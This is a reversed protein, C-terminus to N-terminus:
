FFYFVIIVSFLNSQFEFHIRKDDEGVLQSDLSEICDYYISVIKCLCEFAAVQIATDESQIAEFLMQM